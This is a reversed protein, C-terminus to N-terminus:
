AQLSLAIWGGKSMGIVGVSSIAIDNQNKIYSIAALTDTALDEFSAIKWDGESQDCGRKDPILVVVGNNQLYHALTLNWWRERFSPGAGQIVVAAPFPGDGDPVFLMGALKINHSSNQFSVEKYVTDELKVVQFNRLEEGAIQKIGVPVITILLIVICISIMLRRKM